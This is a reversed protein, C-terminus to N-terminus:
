ERQIKRYKGHQKLNTFINMAENVNSKIDYDSSQVDKM